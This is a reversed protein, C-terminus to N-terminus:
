WDIPQLEETVMEYIGVFEADQIQDPQYDLKELRKTLMVNCMEVQTNSLAQLKPLGVAATVRKALDELQKQDLVEIEMTKM